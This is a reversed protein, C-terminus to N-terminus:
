KQEEKKDDGDLLWLARELKSYPLSRRGQLYNNFNQVQTGVAAAVKAQSIGAERIARTLESRVDRRPKETPAASAMAEVMEVFNAKGGRM